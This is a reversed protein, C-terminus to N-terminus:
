RKRRILSLAGLGLLCLTAPEPTITTKNTGANYTVVAEENLWGNGQWTAMTGTWDGNIVVRGPGTVNLLTLTAAANRQISPTYITGGSINVMGSTGVGFGIGFTGTVNITGGSMNIFGKTGANSHGVFLHGNALNVQGLNITGGTMDLEGSRISPSDIGAMLYEGVNLVGGAAVTLTSWTLGGGPGGIKVQFAQPGASNVLANVLTNNAPYVKALNGPVLSTGMVPLTDPFGTANWNAATMWNNSPAGGSDWTVDLASAISAVGLVLLLILVKRM